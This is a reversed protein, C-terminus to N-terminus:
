TKMGMLTPLGVSLQPFIIFFILLVISSAVLIWIWKFMKEVPTKTIGSAIFMHVGFPPTIMGINLCIIMIIGLQILDYGMMEAIPACIPTLIIIAANSSMFCGIILLLVALAGVFTYKTTFHSAIFTSLLNPVREVTLVWNFGDVMSMVILASAAMVASEELIKKFVTWNIEKYVFVGVILGYVVAVCAAETPTFYGGYIGGLIIVPM